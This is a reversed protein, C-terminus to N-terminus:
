TAHVEAKAAAIQADAWEQDVNPDALREAISHDPKGLRKRLDTQKHPM